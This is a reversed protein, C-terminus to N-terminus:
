VMAWLEGASQAWLEVQKTIGVKRVEKIKRKRKSRRESEGWLGERNKKKKKEFRMTQESPRLKLYMNKLGKIDRQKGSAFFGIQTFLFQTSDIELSEGNRIAFCSKEM